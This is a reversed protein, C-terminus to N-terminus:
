SSFSIIYISTLMFALIFFWFVFFPIHKNYKKKVLFYALLSGWVLSIWFWIYYKLFNEPIYDIFLVIIFLYLWYDYVWTQGIMWDETIFHPRKWIYDLIELILILFLYLVLLYKAYWFDIFFLWVLGVINLLYFSWLYILKKRWDQYAVYWLVLMFITSLLFFLEKM